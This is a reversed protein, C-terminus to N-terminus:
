PGEPSLAARRQVASRQVPVSPRASASASARGHGHANAGHPAGAARGRM